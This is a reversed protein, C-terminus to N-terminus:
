YVSVSVAGKCNSQHPIQMIGCSIQYVKLNETEKGYADSIDFFTIGSHFAEELVLCGAEHSLPANYIGSLEACGFGLRSVQLNSFYLGVEM